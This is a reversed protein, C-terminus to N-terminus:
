RAARRRRFGSRTVAAAVSLAGRIGGSTCALKLHRAAAGWDGAGASRRAQGLMIASSVARARGTLEPYRSRVLAMTRMGEKYSVGSEDARTTFNDDHRRYRVLVDDIAICEGNRFTEIDFMWDNTYTLTENFGNPPCLSSRIMTASPLMKYTPDFWLEIGGSRLPAGNIVHSFLGIPHGTDSDFIEADHTCGAAAPYADLVGVQRELKGPLMVDDGDLWAIMQGRRIALARNLAFPKGQNERGSIVRIREPDREAFSHALALTEDTSGDDTVILEFDDFSQTLVSEIAEAIFRRENYVAM